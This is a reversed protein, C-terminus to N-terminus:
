WVMLFINWIFKSLFEFVKMWPILKSITPLINAKSGSTLVLDSKNDQQQRKLLM